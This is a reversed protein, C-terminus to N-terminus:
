KPFTLNISSPYEGQTPAKSALDATGKPSTEKPASFCNGQASAAHSTTGSTRADGPGCVVQMGQGSRASPALASPARLIHVQTASRPDQNQRGNPAVRQTSKTLNEGLRGALGKTAQNLTSGAKVTGWSVSGSLISYEAAGQSYATKALAVLSISLIMGWIITKTM